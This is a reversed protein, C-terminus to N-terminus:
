AAAETRSAAKTPQDDEASRREERKKLRWDLSCLVQWGLICKERGCTYIGRRGKGTQKIPLDDCICCWGDQSEAVAAARNPGLEARKAGAKLKAAARISMPRLCCPCPEGKAKM